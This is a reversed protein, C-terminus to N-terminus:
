ALMTYQEKLGEHVQTWHGVPRISRNSPLAVSRCADDTRSAAQQDGARGGHCTVEFDGLPGSVDLPVPVPAHLGLVGTSPRAIQVRAPLNRHPGNSPARQPHDPTGSRRASSASISRCTPCASGGFSEASTSAVFHDFRTHLEPSHKPSLPGTTPPSRRRWSLAPASDDAYHCRAISCHSQASGALLLVPGGSARAAQPPAAFFSFMQLAWHVGVSDAILERLLVAEALAAVSRGFLQLSM